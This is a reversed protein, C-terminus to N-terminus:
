EHQRGDKREALITLFKDIRVIRDMDINIEFVLQKYIDRYFMENFIVLIDFDFDRLDNPCVIPIGNFATGWLKPNNDSIVIMEIDKDDRYNIYYDNLINGGCFAAIRYPRPLREAAMEAAISNAIREGCKGDTYPITERFREKRLRQRRDIGNQFRHIFRTMDRATTGKYYTEVLSAFAAAVTEPNRASHMYLIPKNTIGAEIMIASRDTIIADARAL